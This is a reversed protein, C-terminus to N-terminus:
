RAMVLRISLGFALDPLELSDQSIDNVEALGIPEGEKRFHCCVRVSTVRINDVHGWVFRHISSFIGEKIGISDVRRGNRGGIVIVISM